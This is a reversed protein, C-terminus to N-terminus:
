KKKAKKSKRKTKVKAKRKVVKKTPEKLEGRPKIKVELQKVKKTVIDASIDGKESNYEILRKDRGLVRAKHRSIEEQDITKIIKRKLLKDFVGM